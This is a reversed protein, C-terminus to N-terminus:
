PAPGAANPRRVEEEEDDCEEHDAVLWSRTGRRRILKPLLDAPWEELEIAGPCLADARELLAAVVAEDEIPNLSCTSYM